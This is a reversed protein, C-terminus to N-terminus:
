LAGALLFAPLLPGYLQAVDPAWIENRNQLMFVTFGFFVLWGCTWLVQANARAGPRLGWVVAGIGILCLFLALEAM